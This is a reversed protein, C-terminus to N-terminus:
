CEAIGLSEEERRKYLTWKDKHIPLVSCVVWVSNLVGAHLVSGLVFGLVAYVSDLVCGM